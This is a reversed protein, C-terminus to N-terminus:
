FVNWQTGNYVIDVAGYANNIVYSAAGDINKGSPTITINNAAASGVNDKIRHMQGTTPSALPTITRASSTDVLIVNDQPVTTYPYAGPTTIKAADNSSVLPVQTTTNILSSTSTFSLLGYKITGAGTIANTNSSNIICSSVSVPQSATITLASASGTSIFCNYFAGGISGGITYTNNSNSLFSNSIQIAATGSLTFYGSYTTTTMTLSSANGFTSPNTTDDIINCDQFSISSATATLLAGTGNTVNSQCNYLKLTGGTANIANFDIGYIFCDSLELRGGSIAICYTGNTRFQIGSVSVNGTTLTSTGKIIVHSTLVGVAETPYSCMNVGAKLTINETYTGPMIFITDGSTASAIASAITTHTGNFGLPDVIWRSSSMPNINLLHTGATVTSFKTAGAEVVHGVLQINGGSPTVITGVDDSLTLVELGGGTVDLTINPSSYGISLTGGPSTLVGVNIHTGGANVVTSGVWLQGNTALVGGRETGNFSANDANVITDQGTISSFGGM